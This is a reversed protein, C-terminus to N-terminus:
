KTAESDAPIEVQKTTLDFKGAKVDATRYGNLSDQDNTHVYYTPLNNIVRKLGVVKNDATQTVQNIYRYGNKWSYPYIITSVWFTTDKNIGICIPATTTSSSSPTAMQTIVATYEQQNTIKATSKVYMINCWPFTFKISYTDNDVTTISAIIPRNTDITNYSHSTSQKAYIYFYTTATSPVDNTVDIINVPVKFVGSGDGDTSSTHWDVADSKWMTSFGFLLLSSKDFIYASASPLLTYTKTFTISSGDYTYNIKYLKNENSTSSNDHVYLVNADEDFAFTSGDSSATIELSPSIISTDDVKVIYSGKDWEKWWALLSRDNKIAMYCQSRYLTIGTISKVFTLTNTTYDVNYIDVTGADDFAHTILTKGDKSATIYACDTSTSPTHMDISMVANSLMDDITKYNSSYLKCIYIKGAKQIASYENPLQCASFPNYGIDSAYSSGVVGTVIRDKLLTSSDTTQLDNVADAMEVLTSNPTINEVGKENLRQALLNKGISTALSLEALAGAQNLEGVANALDSVTTAQLETKDSQAVAVLDSSNISTTQNLENYTKANAM